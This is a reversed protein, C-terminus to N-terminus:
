QATLSYIRAVGPATSYVREGRALICWGFSADPEPWGPALTAAGPGDARLPFSRVLGSREGFEGALSAGALAVGPQITLGPYGLGQGPAGVHPSGPAPLWAGEAGREYLFIAGSGGAHGQAGVAVFGEGLALASGFYAGPTAGRLVQVQEWRRGRREYVFVAGAGHLSDAAIIAVGGSLRARLGFRAGDDLEEPQLLTSESWGTESREYVSVAGASGAGNPAVHDGVLLWGQEYALEIGFSLRETGELRALVEGSAIDVELVEGPGLGNPAGILLTGRETLAVARGFERNHEGAQLGGPLPLRELQGATERLLAVAGRGAAAAPAGLALLGAREDIAQGCASGPEGQFAATMTRPAEGAHFHLQLQAGSPTSSPLRVRTDARDGTDVGVGGPSLTLRQEQVFAELERDSRLLLTRGQDGRSVILELSSPAARRIVGNTDLRATLRCREEGDGLEMVPTAGVLHRAGSARPVRILEAVHLGRSRHLLVHAGPRLRLTAPLAHERGDIEALTGQEGEVLVTVPWRQYLSWSALLPAAVLAARWAARGPRRRVRRLLRAIWSLRGLPLPAGGQAALLDRHLAAGYPYRDAAEPELARAIIDRLGTPLTRLLRQGVYARGAALQALSRWDPKLSLRRGAAIELLVVGLSYVDAAPGVDSEGRLQEPAMYLPTGIPEGTRSLAFSNGRERALGFDILRVEGGESRLINAPKVDRHLVGREHAHALASALQAGIELALRVREPGSMDVQQLQELREGEVLESAIWAHGEHIGAELVRLIAPHDLRGAVHAERLFTSRQSRDAALLPNLVKLAVRDGGQEPRARYVIGSSGTGLVAELHYGAFLSGPDLDVLPEPKRAQEFSELDRLLAAAQPAGEGYREAFTPIALEPDASRAQCWEDWLRDASPITM